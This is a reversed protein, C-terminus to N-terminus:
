ITRLFNTAQGFIEQKKLPARSVLHSSLKPVPPAGQRNDVGRFRRADLNQLVETRKCTADDIESWIFHDIKASLLNGDCVVLHSMFQMNACESVQRTKGEVKGPMVRRTTEVCANQKM